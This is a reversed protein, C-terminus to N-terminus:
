IFFLDGRGGMWHSREWARPNNPSTLDNANYELHHMYTNQIQTIGVMRARMNCLLVFIKLVIRRKGREEYVFRDKLRPFSTQMALMGWEATQRALTAQKKRQLDLIREQHAPVNSALLDQSSKYLYMRDVNEFASDVCCKEGTTWFVDEL